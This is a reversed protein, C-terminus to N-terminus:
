KNLGRGRAKLFWRSRWRSQVSSQRTCPLRTMAVWRATLMNIRSILSQQQESGVKLAVVMPTSSSPDKERTKMLIHHELALERDEITVEPLAQWPEQVFAKRSEWERVLTNPPATLCGGKKWAQAEMPTWGSRDREDGPRRRLITPLVAFAPGTRLRLATEKVLRNMHIAIPPLHLETNLAEAATTRFEGSILCAAQKQIGVFSQSITRAKTKSIIMPQYWASLRFLMQPIVVAQYIRRMASISAGM